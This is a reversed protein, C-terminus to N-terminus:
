LGQAREQPVPLLHPVHVCSDCDHAFPGTEGSEGGSTVQTVLLAEFDRRPEPHSFLYGQGLDCGRNRLACAQDIVEIGEGLVILGLARGLGCIAEVVSADDAEVAVGDVFSRDIKLVDVPLRRLYALSSYGTGFDDVAISVGLAKLQMLQSMAVDVDRMLDSETIELTLVDPPVAAERLAREVEGVFAPRSLQRAAVNVSISFDPQGSLDRWAGARLLAERLIWRGLPVILGTQEAIPIFESPPVVGREPHTWRALAEAGVVRGSLLDVVPQYAVCLGGEELAKRLDTELEMRRMASEHVAAEFMKSSGPGIEKARHVAADADRLLVHPDSTGGEAVVVGVCARTFVTTADLEFPMELCRHFRDVTRDVEVARVGELVVVFNDAGLRGVCDSDRAHEQLRAGVACLLRDGVEHGFSDNVTKFGDLNFLLVATREDDRAGRALSHSIRDALLARNPLGTLRDHALDHALRRGLSRSEMVTTTQRALALVLILGMLWQTVRAQGDSTSQTLSLGVVIVALVLPAVVAAVGTGEQPSAAARRHPLSRTQDLSAMAAMALCLFGAFWGVDTLGGTVYDGTATLHAFAADSTALASFSLLLLIGSARPLRRTRATTLVLVSVLAVDAVPYALTTIFATTEIDSSDIIARVVTLWAALVLMLVVLVADIVARLRGTLGVQPLRFGLLAVMALVPAALFGADALSPTPTDTGLVVEFYAWVAQGVAWSVASLSMFTWARRTGDSANRGAAWAAAAAATPALLQLGNSVLQTQAPALPEFLVFAVFGTTLVLAVAMASLFRPSLNSQVNPRDTFWRALPPTM